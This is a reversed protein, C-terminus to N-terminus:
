TSRSMALSALYKVYERQLLLFTHPQRWWHTVDVGAPDVPWLTLRINPMVRRFEHLTRPMHYRATVIVLSRFHHERAWEAAEDANGRTDQAAYGVDACCAFRKGGHAIHGLVAKTTQMDAGTILLRKGVGHELLAVANELREDGGTLVVIGDIHSPLPSTAPLGAAFLVFGVAYALLALLIATFFARLAFPEPNRGCFLLAAGPSLDTL